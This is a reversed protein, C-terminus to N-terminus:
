LRAPCVTDSIRQADGRWQETASLNGVWPPARTDLAAGPTLWPLHKKRKAKTSFCDRKPFVRNLQLCHTLPRSRVLPHWPRFALKVVLFCVISRQRLLHDSRVHSMSGACGDCAAQRHDGLASLTWNQALVSPRAPQLACNYGSILQLFLLAFLVPQRKTHTM